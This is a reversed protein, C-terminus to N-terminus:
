REEAVRIVVNGVKMGTEVYEYAQVIQALPYTRDVVPTFAGDAMLQQLFVVDSKRDRPIPFMVRKRGFVRTTLALLPNEGWSGLESSLYIGHPKLLARCRGYSSKGVADMVVDFRDHTRTFDEKTYDIIHEAGLSRVLEVNVTDCVATVRAGAHTLLQVAASGIGGTAGNVLVEQGAVIGAARIHSLAYHAGETGPVAHEFSMGAPILAVLGSERVTVYESQSGFGVGTYGFVRDGVAFSEVQAGIAMVLGAFENGLIRKRPRLLGSFLRVFRPRGRLFGCDTRNVTAAYVMVLLEDDRPTPKPEDVVRLV